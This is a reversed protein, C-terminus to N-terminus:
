GSVVTIKRILQQHLFRFGNNKIENIVFGKEHRNGSCAKGYPPSSVAYLVYPDDRLHIEHLTSGIAGEALEAVRVAAQDGPQVCLAQNGHFSVGLM